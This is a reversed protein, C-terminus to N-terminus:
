CREKLEYTLRIPSDSAHRAPFSIDVKPYLKEPILKEYGTWALTGPGLGPTALGLVLDTERGVALRERGYLTIQWPGAFHLVPASQPSDGFQLFGNRDRYGASQEVRGGLGAGKQGPMQVHLGVYYCHAKADKALIGKARDDLHALSALNIVGVALRKHILKGEHIDSAEFSFIGEAPDTGDGPTAQVKEGFETLDGNGNRDVYLTDGDHVLWVRTKAEPGFVLLCYRPQNTKYAPEKRISRDIKALDSAPLVAPALLLLVAALLHRFYM